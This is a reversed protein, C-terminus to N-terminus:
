CSNSFEEYLENVFVYLMYGSVTVLPLFEIMNFLLEWIFFVIIIYCVVIFVSSCNLADSSGEDFPMIPFILCFTTRDPSRFLM